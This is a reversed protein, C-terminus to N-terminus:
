TLTHLVSRTTSNKCSPKILRMPNGRTWLPHVELFGLHTKDNLFYQLEYSKPSPSLKLKHCNSPLKWLFAPNRPLRSFYPFIQDNELRSVNKKPRNIHFYFIIKWVQMKPLCKCLCKTLYQNWKVEMTNVITTATNSRPIDNLFNISIQIWFQTPVRFIDYWRLSLMTVDDLCLGSIAHTTLDVVSRWQRVSCLRKV